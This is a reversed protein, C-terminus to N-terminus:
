FFALQVVISESRQEDANRIESVQVELGSDSAVLEHEDRNSVQERVLVAENCDVSIDIKHSRLM